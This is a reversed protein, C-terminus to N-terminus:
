TKIMDVDGSLNEAQAQRDADDCKHHETDVPQPIISCPLDDLQKESPDRYRKTQCFQKIQQAAGPQAKDVFCHSAQASSRQFHINNMDGCNQEITLAPKKSIIFPPKQRVQKKHADAEYQRYKEAPNIM